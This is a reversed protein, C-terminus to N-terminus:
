ALQVRGGSQVVFERGLEELGIELVTLSIRVGNKQTMTWATDRLASHDVATIRPDNSPVMRIRLRRGEIRASAVAEWPIVLQGLHSRSVVGVGHLGLPSAVTRMRAWTWAYGGVFFLWVILSATLAFVLVAGDLWFSFGTFIATAVLIYVVLLVLARRDLAGRRLPIDV